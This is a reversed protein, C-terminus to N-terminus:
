LLKKAYICLDSRHNKLINQRVDVNFWDLIIGDQWYLLVGIYAWELIDFDVTESNLKLLFQQQRTLYRNNRNYLLEYMTDFRSLDFTPLHQLCEILTQSSNFDNYEINLFKDDHYATLKKFKSTNELLLFYFYEICANHHYVSDTWTHLNYTDILHQLLQDFAVTGPAKNFLDTTLSDVCIGVGDTKELFNYLYWVFNENRVYCNIVNHAHFNDHDFDITMKKIWNVQYDLAIFNNSGQFIFKSTPDIVVALWNQYLGPLGLVTTM